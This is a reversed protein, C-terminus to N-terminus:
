EKQSTRKEGNVFCKCPNCPFFHSDFKKSNVNSQWRLITFYKVCLAFSGTHKKWNRAFIYNKKTVFHKEQSLRYLYYIQQLIRVSYNKVKLTNRTWRFFIRKWFILTKRLQLSCFFPLLPEELFFFKTRRFVMKKFVAPPFAPRVTMRRWWSNISSTDDERHTRKKLVFVAFKTGTEAINTWTQVFFWLGHVDKMTPLIRNQFEHQCHLASFCNRKARLGTLFIPKWWFSVSKKLM